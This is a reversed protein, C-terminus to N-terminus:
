LGEVGTVVKINSPLWDGRSRSGSERDLELTVVVSKDPMSGATTPFCAKLQNFSPVLAKEAWEELGTEGFWVAALIKQLAQDQLEISVGEGIITSFKENISTKIDCTIQNFNVPKFIIADDVIDRLESLAPSTTTSEMKSLGYEDEHDITLDSSNHSGDATDDETNAAAENLDFFLGPNTDKRTKTSREENCLWNARRKLLKESLSLRLQWNESALNALEKEGLTNHDSSYKLDNPLWVTTLIFIVNGLSIERGYSDTLRGSVIARKISGRFLVDAEDIDELVIVSFPNKRVVESIQDLPTRGRFNNALGRDNRQTGLCITVLISGSVLESLASAMKKKGVKDPGAFLLWIDGKSGAGHRKRNGLKRQTITNAVASAADGQWWVKEMIVKLIKKYSDVDTIGLLKASQLDLSKMEPGSSKHNQGLFERTCDKQTQEPISGSFKGQGLILETQISSNDSPQNPQPNMNLQLTRGLSKNLELRPQCPHSKLLNQNYLGTTLIGTPMSGTSSFLNPKHFNPHLRLCTNNWKKQLEQTRQKVMLDHDESQLLVCVHNLEVRDCEVNM